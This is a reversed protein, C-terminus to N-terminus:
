RLAGGSFRVAAGSRASKYGQLIENGSNLMQGSPLTTVEDSDCICISANRLASVTIQVGMEASVGDCILCM